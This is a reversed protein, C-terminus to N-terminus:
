TSKSGVNNEAEGSGVGTEFALRLEPCHTAWTCSRFEVPSQTLATPRRTATMIRSSMASRWTDDCVGGRDTHLSPPPARMSCRVVRRVSSLPTAHQGHCLFTGTIPFCRPTSGHGGRGPLELRVVRQEVLKNGCPEMQIGPGPIDRPMPARRRPSLGCEWPQRLWSFCCAGCPGLCCTKKWLCAYQFFGQARLALSSLIQERPPCPPIPSGTV